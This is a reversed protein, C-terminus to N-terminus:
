VRAHSAAAGTSGTSIGESGVPAPTTGTTAGTTAGTSTNGRAADVASTNVNSHGAGAQVGQPLKGTVAPHNKSDVIDFAPSSWGKHGSSAAYDETQFLRKSVSKGDKLM